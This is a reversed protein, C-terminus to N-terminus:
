GRLIATTAGSSTGTGDKGKTDSKSDGGSAPGDGKPADTPAPKETKEPKDAAPAPGPDTPPKPMPAVPVDVGAGPVEPAAAQNSSAGAPTPGTANAGERVHRRRRHTPVVEADPIRIDSDALRKDKFFMKRVVVASKHRDVYVFTKGQIVPLTDLCVADKPAKRAINALTLMQDMSLNSHLNNRVAAVANPLGLFATPSTVRARLAEIFEHQRQARMLDNDTHRFRVYGMARYGNLHQQGPKLHIHLKGWNDDYDLPEHVNVDVGGVADVVQQFGEFNLDIYYDPDIGFLDRVTACTLEPGGYAHAANIKHIGHGPVRVRTDRPISLVNISRAVDGDFEFRALMIADSRGPADAVDVPQATHGPVRKGVTDHDSGLILVTLSKRKEPPFNDTLNWVNSPDVGGAGFMVGTHTLGKTLIHRIDPNAMFLGALGFVSVCLMGSLILAAWRGYKRARSWDAARNKVVATSLKPVASDQAPSALKGLGEKVTPDSASDNANSM